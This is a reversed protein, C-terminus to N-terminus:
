KLSVFGKIAALDKANKQWTPLSADGEHSSLLRKDM